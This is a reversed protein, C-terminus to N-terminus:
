YHQPLGPARGIKAIWLDVWMDLAIPKRPCERSRPSQSPLGQGPSACLVSTESLHSASSAATNATSNRPVRTASKLLPAPTRRTRQQADPKAGVSTTTAKSVSAPEDFDADSFSSAAHVSGHECARRTRGRPSDQFLEGCDVCDSESNPSKSRRANCDIALRVGEPGRLIRYIIERQILGNLFPIDQPQEAFGAASLM